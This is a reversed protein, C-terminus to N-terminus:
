DCWDIQKKSCKKVVSYIQRETLNYKHALETHNIGNFDAIIKVNRGAIALLMKKPVYLTEGSYTQRFQEIANEIVSADVVWPKLEEVLIDRMGILFQLTSTTM